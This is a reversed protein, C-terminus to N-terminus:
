SKGLQKKQKNYCEKHFTLRKSGFAKRVVKVLYNDTQIPKDCIGCKM